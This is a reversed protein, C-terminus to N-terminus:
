IDMIPPTKTINPKTPVKRAPIMSSLVFAYRVTIWTIVLTQVNENRPEIQIIGAPFKKVVRNRQKKSPLKKVGIMDAPKENETYRVCGSGGATQLPSMIVKACSKVM